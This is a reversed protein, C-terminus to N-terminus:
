THKWSSHNTSFCVEILSFAHKLAHNWFHPKYIFLAKKVRHNIHFYKTAKSQFIASSYHLLFTYLISFNGQLNVQKDVSNTIMFNNKAKKTNDVSAKAWPYQIKTWLNCYSGAASKLDIVVNMRAEIKFNKNRETMKHYLKPM